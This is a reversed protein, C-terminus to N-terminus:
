VTPDTAGTSATESPTVVSTAGTMSLARATRRVADREDSTTVGEDRSYSIGKGVAYTSASIGLLTLVGSPIDPFKSETSKEVLYFLSVAVVFTFILLQFRSMSADGNTESVLQSLDIRDTWILWLITIALIGIFGCVVISCVTTM